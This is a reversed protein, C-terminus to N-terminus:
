PLDGGHASASILAPTACTTEASSSGLGSTFPWPWARSRAAPMATSDALAGALGGLDIGAEQQAHALAPRQKMELEADDSSPRMAVADPSLLHIVPSARARRHGASRAM